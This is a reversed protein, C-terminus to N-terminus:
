IRVKIKRLEEKIKGQNELIKNLKSDLNNIEENLKETIEKLSKIVKQLNEIEKKLDGFIDEEPLIVGEEYFKKEIQQSFAKLSPFIFLFLLSFLVFTSKYKM